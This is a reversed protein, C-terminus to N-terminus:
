AKNKANMVYIVLALGLLILIASVFFMPSAKLTTISVLAGYILNVM